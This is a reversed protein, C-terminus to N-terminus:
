IKKKMQKRRQLKNNYTISEMPDEVCNKKRSSRWSRLRSGTGLHISEAMKSSKIFQNEKRIMFINFEITIGVALMTM